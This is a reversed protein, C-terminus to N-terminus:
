RGNRYYSECEDCDDDRVEDIQGHETLDVWADV